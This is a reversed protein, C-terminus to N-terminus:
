RYSTYNKIKLTKLRQIAGYATERITDAFTIIGVLEGEILVYNVTESEPDVDVPLTPLAKGKTLFYNPGVSTIKKGTVNGEVGIGQLYEFNQVPLLELKLEKLKRIIGKSIHHASNQQVSAAYQLLQDRTISLDVVILRQLEHSGLTLTGTKDFVITTIKRVNEFATRNRILLGHTAAMSTSISVVLPIAVGLAHPCATVMVTVMRELAFSLEKGLILWTVLTAAGAFLSIYTLRRAIKNALNQTASKSEQAQQVMTVVKNLYGEEGTGEVLITLVGDGNVAGGIVREGVEKKVPLSEGTLMSENVYSIGEKVFGDAPIREGGKVLIFDGKKLDHISIERIESGVRLNVKSPLLSALAQLARSASMESRMELWHGLLM